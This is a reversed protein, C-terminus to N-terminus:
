VPQVNPDARAGNGSQEVLTLRRYAHTPLSRSTLFCPAPRNSQARKSTIM